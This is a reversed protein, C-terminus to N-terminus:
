GSVLSFDDHSSKYLHEAANHKAVVYGFDPVEYRLQPFLCLSHVSFYGNKVSHDLGFRLLFMCDTQMQLLVDVVVDLLQVAVFVVQIELLFVLEQLLKRLM